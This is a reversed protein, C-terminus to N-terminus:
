WIKKRFLIKIKYRKEVIEALNLDICELNCANILIGKARNIQGAAAIGISSIESKKINSVEFLEDLAEFLKATIKENGKEKKTKKKVDFLIKHSKTDTIACLVKTGGLDVGISYKKM